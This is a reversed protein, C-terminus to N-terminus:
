SNASRFKRTFFKPLRGAGYLIMCVMLPIIALLEPVTSVSRMTEPSSWIFVYIFMIHWLYISLTAPGLTTFVNSPPSWKRAVGGALVLIFALNMLMISPRVYAKDLEQREWRFGMLNPDMSNSQILIFVSIGLLGSVTMLVLGARKLFITSVSDFHLGVFFYFLWFIAFPRGWHYYNLKSFYCLLGILLHLILLVFTINAVTADYSMKPCFKEHIFKPLARLLPLLLYLQIILPIFYFTPEIGVWMLRYILWDFRESWTPLERWIPFHDMLFFAALSAILYPLIIQRFRGGYYTSLSTKKQSWGALLGSLFIFLPVAFSFFQNLTLGVYFTHPSAYKASIFSGAFHVCVVGWIAVGKLTDVYSNRKQNLSHTSYTTGM